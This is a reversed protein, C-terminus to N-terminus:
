PSKRWRMVQLTRWKQKQEPKKFDAAKKGEFQAQESAAPELWVGDSKMLDILHSLLAARDLNKLLPHSQNVANFVDTSRHHQDTIPLSKLADEVRLVRPDKIARAAREASRKALDAAKASITQELRFQQQDDPAGFRGYGVATKAGIGILALANALHGLLTDRQSTAEPTRPAVAFQLVTGPAVALFPSPVPSTWDAPLNDCDDGDLDQIGGGREHWGVHHPTIVDAELRVPEVPLADFFIFQGVSDHKGFWSEIKSKEFTESWVDLFARTCGKIASGPLYPVGLTPHWCFGNEVPHPLGLGTVFRGNTTLLLCKGGVKDCLRRTRVAATALLDISGIKRPNTDTHTVTRIWDQKANTDAQRDPEPVEIQGTSTRVYRDFFRDYWLGAHADPPSGSTRSGGPIPQCDNPLPLLPM